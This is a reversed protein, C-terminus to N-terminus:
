STPTRPSDWGLSRWKCLMVVGRCHFPVLQRERHLCRDHRRAEVESIKAPLLARRLICNSTCKLMRKCVSATFLATKFGAGAVRAPLCFQFHTRSIIHVGVGAFVSPLTDAELCAAERGKGGSCQLSAPPRLSLVGHTLATTENLASAGRFPCPTGPCASTIFM